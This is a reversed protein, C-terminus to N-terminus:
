ESTSIPPRTPPACRHVDSTDTPPSTAGGSEASPAPQSPRVAYVVPLVPPMVLVLVAATALVVGVRSRVKGVRFATRPAPANITTIVCEANLVPCIRRPQLPPTRARRSKPTARNKM